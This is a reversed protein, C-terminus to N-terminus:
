EKIRQLFKKIITNKARNLVKNVLNNYITNKFEFETEFIIQTDHHKKILYWTSNFYSLPGDLIQIMITINKTKPIITRPKVTIKCKYTEKIFLFKVRVDAIIYKKTKNIIKIESYWPIFEPYKEINMITHYVKDINYPIIKEISLKSM